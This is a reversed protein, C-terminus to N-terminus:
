PLDQCMAVTPQSADIQDSNSAYRVDVSPDGRGVRDLRVGLRCLGSRFGAICRDGATSLHATLLKRGKRAKSHPVPKNANLKSRPETSVAKGLAGRLLRGHRVGFPGDLSTLEDVAVAGVPAGALEVSQRRVSMALRDAPELDLLTMVTRGLEVAELKHSDEAPRPGNVLAFAFRRDHDVLPSTFRLARRQQADEGPLIGLGPRRDEIYERGGEFFQVIRDESGDLELDVNRASLRAQDHGAHGFAAAFRDEIGNGARLVAHASM